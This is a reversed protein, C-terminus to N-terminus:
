PLTLEEEINMDYPDGVVYTNDMEVYNLDSDIHWVCKCKRCTFRAQGILMDCLKPHWRCCCRVENKDNIIASKPYEIIM